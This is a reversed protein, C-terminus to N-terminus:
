PLATPVDAIPSVSSEPGTAAVKACSNLCENVLAGQRIKINELSKNCGQNASSAKSRRDKRKQGEQDLTLYPMRRSDILRENALLWLGKMQDEKNDKVLTFLKHDGRVMSVAPESIPFVLPGGIGLVPRCHALDRSALMSIVFNRRSIPSEGTQRPISSRVDRWIRDINNTHAGCDPDVFNVSHNVTLHEFGHNNLDRYSKWQVVFLRGTNREFGGFIWYGGVWRGRNYKRKGIKAEDIEVVRNEGGITDVGTLVFTMATLGLYEMAM